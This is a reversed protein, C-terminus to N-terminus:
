SGARPFHQGIQSALFSDRAVCRHALIVEDLNQRGFRGVTRDLGLQNGGLFTGMGAMLGSGSAIGRLIEGCLFLDFAALVLDADGGLIQRGLHGLVQGAAVAAVADDDHHAVRVPQM